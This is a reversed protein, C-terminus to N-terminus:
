SKAANDLGKKALTFILIIVVMFVIFGTITTVLQCSYHWTVWDLFCQKIADVMYNTIM